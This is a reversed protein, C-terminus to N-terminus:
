FNSDVRCTWSRNDARGWMSEFHRDFAAVATRDTILLLSNDQAKLGSVSANASGARWLSGDASWDKDHMLDQFTSKLMITVNATEALRCLPHERRLKLLKLERPDLYLRVTKGREAARGLAGIVRYDSLVYLAANVHGGGPLADLSHVDIAELDEEPSFHAVASSEGFGATPNSLLWIAALGAAASRRLGSRSSVIM